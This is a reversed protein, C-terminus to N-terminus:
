SIKYVICVSPVQQAYKLLEIQLHRRDTNRLEFVGM